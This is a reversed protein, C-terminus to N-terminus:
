AAMQAACSSRGTSLVRVRDLGTSDRYLEIVGWSENNATNMEVWDAAPNATSCLLYRGLPLDTTDIWQHAISWPYVDAWGVSLGMRISTSTRKGCGSQLYVATSPAGKLRLNWATTDFFCFGVKAGRAPGAVAPAPVLQFLEYKEVEMVHWHRHGDGVDYRAIAPSAVRRWTGNSRKIRQRTTMTPCADTACARTGKVVFPGEGLNLIIGSFRLLRRDPGDDTAAMQIRISRPKAMRLDPLLDRVTAAAASPTFAGQPLALVIVSLGCAVVLRLGRSRTHAV